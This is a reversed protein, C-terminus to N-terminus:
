ISIYSDITDVEGTTDKLIWGSIDIDESSFLEIWDSSGDTSMENIVVQASAGKAFIFSLSTFLAFLFLIRM